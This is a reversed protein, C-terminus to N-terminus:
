LSTEDHDKKTLKKALRQKKTQKIEKLSPKIIIAVSFSLLVILLIRSYGLPVGYTSFVFILFRRLYQSILSSIVLNVALITGAPTVEQTIRYKDAIRLPTM